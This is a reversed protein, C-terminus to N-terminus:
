PNLQPNGLTLALPAAQVYLSVTCRFVTCVSVSLNIPAQNKM